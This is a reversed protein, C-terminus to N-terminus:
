VLEKKILKCRWCQYLKVWKEATEDTYKLPEVIPEEGEAMAKTVSPLKNYRRVTVQCKFVGILHWGNKHKCPFLYRFLNM